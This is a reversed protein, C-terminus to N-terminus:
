SVAGASLVKRIARAVQSLGYPKPLFGNAGEALMEQVVGEMSYGSSLLVPIGPKMRRLERFAERGGMRPMIIDLIVLDIEGKRELFLRCAAEGDEVAYTRYGLAQLMSEGMERLAPEDDVLLVTETGKPYPGTEADPESSARHAVAPLYVRFLTGKGPASEVSIGGSHNKVIGYAMPLGMGARGKDRNTTYFPDFIHRQLEEAMGVGTDRVEVYAYRGPDRVYCRKAEEADLTVNGTAIRLVGGAPMADRANLCLNLLTQDLQGEDGEVSLLDPDLHSEVRISPDCAILFVSLVHEAVQNLSVPQVHFKGGRAFGLLKATLDAAREASAQIKHITEAFPHSRDMKSELLSCHGIIVELVNNFEHAIGGALSGVAEMKQTRATDLRTKEREEELRLRETIDVGIGVVGRTKGSETRLVKGNWSIQREAGDRTLLPDVYGQAERGSLIERFLSRARDRLAEPVLLSFFDKGLVEEALWGTVQEAARNFLRLSGSPDMEMVIVNADEVVTRFREESEALARRAEVQGTIDVAVSIGLEVGGGADRFPYMNTLAWRAGGPRRPLEWELNNFSEGSFIRSVIGRAEKERDPLGVIEYLPLGVAERPSLAYLRRCHQNWQQVVGDRDYTFCAAPIQEFLRRLREESRFLKRYDRARELALSAQLAFASLEEVAEPGFANPTPAYVTLAGAVKGEERLPIAAVSLFGRALANEKWPAFRPTRRIDHVIDPRGTRISTGTPGRGLPSGDWRVSISKLYGQLDGSVAVPEVTGDPRAMGLWSMRYGLATVSEVVAALLDPSAPKSLLSATIDRLRGLRIAQRRIRAVQDHREALRSLARTFEDLPEEAATPAGPHVYHYNELLKEGSLVYPYARLLGMLASSPFGKERFLFLGQLDRSAVFGRLEAALDVAAEADPAGEGPTPSIDVCLRIGAFREAAATRCLEELRALVSAPDGAADPRLVLLAGRSMAHGVDLGMAQLAALVEKGFSAGGYVLCKEGRGLGLRLWVSVPELWEEAGGYFLAACVRSGIKELSESLPVPM